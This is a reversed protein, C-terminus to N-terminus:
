LLIAGKNTQQSWWQRSEATVYQLFRLKGAPILQTHALFTARAYDEWVQRNSTAALQCACDHYGAQQLATVTRTMSQGRVNIVECWVHECREIRLAQCMKKSFAVYDPQPLSPCIMGFTRYGEDQMQHLSEIRKSVKSTGAEIAAAIGDDPTGTSVGYIMRNRYDNLERAIFPLLTSKSLLRIQWHTSRLIIRCLEITERALELNAGVDVLPSAYVVRTDRPDAYRPRGDAYHLQQHLIEPANVRRIVSGEFSAKNDALVRTHPNRSMMAPVYCYCCSYACASGASFTPGDSLGKEKFKSDLNLISKAPVTFVPKKNMTKRENQM